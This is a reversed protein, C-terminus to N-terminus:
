SMRRHDVLVKCRRVYGGCLGEHRSYSLFKSPCGNPCRTSNQSDSFFTRIKFTTSDLFDVTWTEDICTTVSALAAQDTGYLVPWTIRWRDRPEIRTGLFNITLSPRVGDGPACFGVAVTGAHMPVQSSSSASLRRTPSLDNSLSMTRNTLCIPVSWFSVSM